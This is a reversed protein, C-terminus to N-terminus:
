AKERRRRWGEAAAVLVLVPLGALYGLATGNATPDTELCNVEAWHALADLHDHGGPETQAPGATDLRLAGPPPCFVFLDDEVDNVRAELVQLLADKVKRETGGPSDPEAEYHINRIAAPLWIGPAVEHQGSLEFRQRAAGGPVQHCERALLTFGREADLWLCDVGPRELVHCWREGVREQTPRVVYAASAAVECLMFPEKGERRPAPRGDLPWLGTALFFFEDPMSGPLPDGPRLAGEFYTRNVRNEVYWHDATVYCRQQLPDDSWDLRAHGHTSIHLLLCPAKAAVVRHLYSGPPYPPGRSSMDSRYVVYISHVKQQARLVEARVAASLWAAPPSQAVATGAALLTWATLACWATRPAGAAVTM